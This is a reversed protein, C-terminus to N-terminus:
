VCGYQCLSVWLFVFGLILFCVWSFRNYWRQQCSVSCGPLATFVCGLAICWWPMESFSEPKQAEVDVGSGGTYM